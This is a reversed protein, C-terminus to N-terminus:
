VDVVVRDDVVRVPYTRVRMGDPNFMARGTSLEFEWGHWPCRIVANDLGYEYCQPKSALMTGGITGLSLSAGHHPCTDNIAFYSEETRVVCVARGGLDMRRRDGPQWERVSGIDHEVM